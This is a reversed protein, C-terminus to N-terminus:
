PRGNSELEDLIPCEPRDDGHCREVLDLLTARLSQLAAIKREVVAVHRVAIARVKASERREDAWLALLSEVEKVSFGLGRARSVFRLVTLAREDYLRYGNPGRRPQPLLGEQEYYRITRAPVGTAAAVKGITLPQSM